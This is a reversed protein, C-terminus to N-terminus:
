FTSNIFKDKLTTPKLYSPTKDGKNDYDPEIFYATDNAILFHDFIELKTKNELQFDKKYLEFNFNYKSYKLKKINSDYVNFYRIDSIKNTDAM